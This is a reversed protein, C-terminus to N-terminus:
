RQFGRSLYEEHATRSLAADEEADDVLSALAERLEQLEERNPLDDGGAQLLSEVLTLVESAQSELDALSSEIADTGDDTELRRPPQPSM